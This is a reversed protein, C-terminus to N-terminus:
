KGSKERIWNYMFNSDLKETETENESQEVIKDLTYKIGKSIGQTHVGPEHMLEDAYEYLTDIYKKNVVIYETNNM